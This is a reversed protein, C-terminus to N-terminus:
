IVGRQGQRGNKKDRMMLGGRYVYRPWGLISLVLACHIHVQCMRWCSTKPSRLTSSRSTYSLQRAIDVCTTTGNHVDLTYRGFWAWICICAYEGVIPAGGVSVKLDRHTIGKKHLQQLTVLVQWLLSRAEDEAHIMCPVM